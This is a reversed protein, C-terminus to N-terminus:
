FTFFVGVSLLNSDQLRTVDSTYRTYDAKFAINSAFDWRLGLGAYIDDNEQSAVVGAVSGYLPHQAPLSALIGSKPTSEQTGWNVYPMVSGFRYGAAVYANESNALFSNKARTQTWEGVLLWNNRDVEFGLNKFRAKDDELKILGATRNLGSAILGNILPDFAVVNLTLDAEYYAGRLSLWGDHNVDWSAGMFDKLETSNGSDESVDYMGYFLKATSFWSGFARSWSLSAGEANDIGVNYVARHPKMWPYAYGVDLFDSYRFFATRQRGLTLSLEDNLKIGVYAWAFDADFDESGRAVIQGTASVRENLDASVQVAFLSDEKFNIDDDYETDPFVDADGTATGAVVQGFGSVRVQAHADVATFLLAASVALVIPKIVPAVRHTLAQALAPPTGRM